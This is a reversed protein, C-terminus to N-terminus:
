CTVLKSPYQIIVHHSILLSAAIQSEHSNREVMDLEFTRNILVRLTDRSPLLRM